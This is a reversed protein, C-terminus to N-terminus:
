GLRETNLGRLDIELCFCVFAYVGDPTAFGNGRLGNGRQFVLGAGSRIALSAFSSLKAEEGHFFYGTNMGHPLREACSPRHLRDENSFPPMTVPQLLNDPQCSAVANGHSKFLARLDVSGGPTTVMLAHNRQERRSGSNREFVEEGTGSRGSM